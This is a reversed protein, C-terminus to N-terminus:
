ILTDHKAQDMYVGCLGGRGQGALVAAECTVAVQMRGSVSGSSLLQWGVM